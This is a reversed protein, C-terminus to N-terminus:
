VGLYFIAYFDITKKFFILIFNLNSTLGVRNFKNTKKLAM